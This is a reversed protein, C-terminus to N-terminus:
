AFAQAPMKYRVCDIVKQPLPLAPYKRRMLMVAVMAAQPWDNETHPFETGRIVERTLETLVVVSQIQKESLRTPKM